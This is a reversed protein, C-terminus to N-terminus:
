LSPFSRGAGYIFLARDRSGGGGCAPPPMAFVRQGIGLEVVGPILKTLRTPFYSRLAPFSMFPVM